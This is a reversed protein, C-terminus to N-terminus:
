HKGKSKAYELANELAAKKNELEYGAGYHMSHGKTRHGLISDKMTDNCGSNRLWDAMTHRYSSFGKGPTTKSFFDSMASNIQTPGQDNHFRTFGNPFKQMAKLADGVLPIDRHRMGGKKVRDRLENPRIQIYPVPADLHIDQSMMWVLERANAGTCEGILILAKAEETMGSTERKKRVLNVEDITFPPRAEDDDYDTFKKVDKFPNEKDEYEEEFVTDLIIRLWDLKKNAADSKFEGNDLRDKVIRRYAKVDSKTLKLVDKEGMAEIFDDVAKEKRRWYRKTEVPNKDKVKHRYLEKFRVFAQRFTMEPVDAVGALAAIESQRPKKILELPQLREFMTAVSEQLPASVIENVPRYQIGLRAAIEKLLEFSLDATNDPQNDNDFLRTYHDIVPGAKIFAQTKDRTKLSKWIQHKGGFRLRQHLPIPIVVYYINNRLRVYKMKFVFKSM